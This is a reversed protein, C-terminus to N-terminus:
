GEVDGDFKDWASDSLEHNGEFSSAADEKEDSATALPVARLKKIPMVHNTSTSPHTANLSAGNRHNGVLNKRDGARNTQM